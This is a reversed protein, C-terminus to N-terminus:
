SFNGLMVQEHISPHNTPLNLLEGFMSTLYEVYNRHDYAFAYPIISRACELYLDWNGCRTAHITNVLITVMDLFTLWFKTLDAGNETIHNKYDLFLRYSTQFERSDKHETYTSTSLNKAFNALEEKAESIFSQNWADAEYFSEM